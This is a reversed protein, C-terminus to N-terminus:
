PGPYVKLPKIESGQRSFKPWQREQVFINYIHLKIPPPPPTPRENWSQISVLAFKCWVPYMLVRNLFLLLKMCKDVDIKLLCHLSSRCQVHKIQLCLSRRFYQGLQDFVYGHCYISLLGKSWTVTVEELRWVNPWWGHERAHCAEIDYFTRGQAELKYYAMYFSRIGTTCFFSHYFRCHLSLSLQIDM